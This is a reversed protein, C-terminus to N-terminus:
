ECNKRIRKFLEDLKEIAAGAKNVRPLLEQMFRQEFEASRADRWHNKTDAWRLSIERSLGTLRSKNGNLNM